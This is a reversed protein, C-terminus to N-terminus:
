RWIGHAAQDSEFVLEVHGEGAISVMVPVADDGLAGSEQMGVVIQRNAHVIQERMPRRPSVAHRYPFCHHAAADDVTDRALQMALEVFHRDTELPEDFPQEAAPQTKRALLARSRREQAM